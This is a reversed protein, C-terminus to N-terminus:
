LPLIIITNVFDIERTALLLLSTPFMQPLVFSLNYVIIKAEGMAWASHTPHPKWSTIKILRSVEKQVCTKLGVM